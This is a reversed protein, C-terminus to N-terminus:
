VGRQDVAQSFVAGLHDRVVDFEAVFRFALFVFRQREGDQVGVVDHERGSLHVFVAFAVDEAAFFRSGSEAGAFAVRHDLVVRAALQAAERDFHLAEGGERDRGDFGGGALGDVEALGAPLERPDVVAAGRFGEREV